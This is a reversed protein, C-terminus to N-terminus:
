FLAEVFAKKLMDAQGGLKYWRIYEAGHSARITDPKNAPPSAQAGSCEFIDTSISKNAAARVVAGGSAAGWQPNANCLYLSKKMYALSLM